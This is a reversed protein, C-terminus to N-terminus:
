WMDESFLTDEPGHKTVIQGAEEAIRFGEKRDVFRGDSTLFGQETEAGVAVDGAIAFMANIVHHHRGPRPTMVVVDGYQVAAAM